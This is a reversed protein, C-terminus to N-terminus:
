SRQFALNLLNNLEDGGGGGGPSDSKFDFRGRVLAGVHNLKDEAQAAGIM